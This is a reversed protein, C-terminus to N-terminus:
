GAEAQLRALLRALTSGAATIRLRPPPANETAKAELVGSLYLSLAGHVSSWAAFALAEPDLDRLGLKAVCAASVARVEDYTANAVESLEPFRSRDLLERRFMVAYHGPREVGLALYAEGIYHLQEVPDEPARLRAARMRGLLDEFGESAIAALIADRDAFHHYPAQHSVAARRAVERISLAALGQEEIIRVSAALVKERLDM